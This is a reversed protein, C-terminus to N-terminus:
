RWRRPHTLRDEGWPYGSDWDLVASAAAVPASGDKTDIGMHGNYATQFAKALERYQRSKSEHNTVDAALSAQGQQAYHAAIWTCGISAAKNVVADEDAVPVTATLVFVANDAFGGVPAAPTFTIGTMANQSAVVPSANTVTYVGSVNTITFTDDAALYGSLPAGDLALTTGGALVAGNVAVSTGLSAHHPATYSLRLTQSASPLDSVLRLLTATPTRYLTWDSEELYTPPVEGAPFELSHLTSFALDWGGPLAYDATGNGASDSVLTRPRFRGYDGVAELVAAERQATSLVADTDQLRDALKAVLTALTAM